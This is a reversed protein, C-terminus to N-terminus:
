FTELAVDDIRLRTPERPGGIYPIGNSHVIQVIAGLLPAGVLKYDAFFPAGDITVSAAPGGAADLDVTFVIRIWKGEASMRTDPPGASYESQGNKGPQGYEQFAFKGDPEVQMQLLMYRAADAFYLAGTNFGTNRQGPERYMSWTARVRRTAPPVDFRILSATTQGNSIPKTTFLLSATPSQSVTSDVTVNGDIDWPALPSPGDFDSCLFTTAKPLTDCFRKPPGTDAGGEVVAGDTLGASDVGGDSAPTVGSSTGDTTGGSYGTTSVLLTCGVMPAGMAAVIWSLRAFSTM